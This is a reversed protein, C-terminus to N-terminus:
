EEVFEVVVTDLYRRLRAACELAVAADHDRGAAEIMAGLETIRDFGYGGGSGKMTHGLTTVREYEGSKVASEIEEADSKRRELYRPILSELTVDVRAIVGDEDPYREAGGNADSMRPVEEM